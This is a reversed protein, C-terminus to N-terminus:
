QIDIPVVTTIGGASATCSALGVKRGHVVVSPGAFTNVLAAGYQFQVAAPDASTWHITARPLPNNLADCAVASFGASDGDAM